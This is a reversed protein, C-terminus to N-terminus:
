GGLYGPRAKVQVGRQKVRVDLRHWGGKEVGQPTYSLLYRRRFQDLVRAFAANLDRSSEIEFLEGGTADTLDRLFPQGAIRKPVVAYAVASSRRATGLV